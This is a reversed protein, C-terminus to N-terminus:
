ARDNKEGECSIRFYATLQQYYHYCISDPFALFHYIRVNGPVTGESGHFFGNSPIRTQSLISMYNINEVTIWEDEPRPVIRKDKFSKTKYRQSVLKGLYIPNSLIQHVTTKAWAYPHKVRENTTIVFYDKDRVLALLEDYM